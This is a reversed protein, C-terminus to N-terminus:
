QGGKVTFDPATCVDQTIFGADDKAQNRATFYELPKSLVRRVEAVECADADVGCAAALAVLTLGSGGIEREIGGPPRAYIYRVLAILQEPDVGVTQAAEIAEEAHRLGRQAPSAARAQGFAAICWAHVTNQRAKRPHVIGLPKM